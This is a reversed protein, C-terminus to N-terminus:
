GSYPARQTSHGPPMDAVSIRLAAAFRCPVRQCAARCAACRVPAAEIIEPIEYCAGTSRYSNNCTICLNPAHSHCAPTSEILLSLEGAAPTRSDNRALPPHRLAEIITGYTYRTNGNSGCLPRLQRTQTGLLRLLPFLTCRRLVVAHFGLLWVGQSSSGAWLRSGVVCFTHTRQSPVQQARPPHRAPRRRSCQHCATHNSIHTTNESAAHLAGQNPPHKRAGRATHNAQTPLSANRTRTHRRHNGARTESKRHM